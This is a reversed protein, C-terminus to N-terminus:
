ATPPRPSRRTAYGRRRSPGTARPRHCGRTRMPPAVAVDFAGRTRRRVRQAVALVGRLDRDVRVAERGARRNLGCLDSADDFLTLGAEVRRLEALAAACAALGEAESRAFTMLHVPQGM